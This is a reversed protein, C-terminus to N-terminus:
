KGYGSLATQVWGSVLKQKDSETFDKTAQSLADVAEPRASKVTKELRKRVTELFWRNATVRIRVTKGRFDKQAKLWDSAPTPSGFRMVAAYVVVLECDAPVGKGSKAAEAASLEDFEVGSTRLEERFLEIYPTTEPNEEEFVFLVPAASAVVAAFCAALACATRKFISM